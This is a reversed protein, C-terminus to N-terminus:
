NPLRVFSPRINTPVDFFIGCVHRVLNLHRMRSWFGDSDVGLISNEVDWAGSSWQVGLVRLSLLMKLYPVTESVVICLSDYPNGKLLAIANQM